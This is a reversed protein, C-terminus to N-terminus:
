ETQQRTKLADDYIKQQEPTLLARIAQDNKTKAATLEDSMAKRDVPRKALYRQTIEKRGAQRERLLKNVDQRQESSLNLQKPLSEDAAALAVAPLSAAFLLAILTKRM